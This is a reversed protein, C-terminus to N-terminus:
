GRAAELAETVNTENGKGYMLKGLEALMKLGKIENPLLPIQVLPVNFRETIEKLYKEQMARRTQVFPITAQELPIVMNAVALGPHVGV